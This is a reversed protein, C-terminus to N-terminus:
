YLATLRGAAVCKEYYTKWLTARPDNTKFLDVAYGEYRQNMSDIWQQTGPCVKDLWAQYEADEASTTQAAAPTATETPTAAPQQAVPTTETTSAAPEQAVPVATDEKTDAADTTAAVGAKQIDSTVKNGFSTKVVFLLGAILFVILFRGIIRMATSEFIRANLMRKFVHKKGLGFARKVMICDTYWTTTYIDILTASYNRLYQSLEMTM